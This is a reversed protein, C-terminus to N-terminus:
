LKFKTFRVYFIILEVKEHEYDELPPFRFTSAETFGLSQIKRSM